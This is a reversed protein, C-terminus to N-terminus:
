SLRLFTMLQVRGVLAPSASTTITASTAPMASGSVGTCIRHILRIVLMVRPKARANSGVSATVM